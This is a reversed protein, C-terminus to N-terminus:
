GKDHLPKGRGDGDSSRNCWGPLFRRWATARERRECVGQRHKKFHIQRANDIFRVTFIKGELRKAQRDMGGATNRWASLALNSGRNKLPFASWDRM